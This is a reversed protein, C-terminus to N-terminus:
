SVGVFGDALLWERFKELGEVFPTEPKYGLLRNAKETSAWTEPVDGAQEAMRNIIAKKGFVQELDEIMQTLSVTKNNGLNIAEYPSADYDIAARIGQVTDKVFTYDRRTSGDGFVPIPKGALILKAFKHIALDPRQRPGFVTFFRLALFRIGFLHSYVHGLLEGSIKTSAYPSIPQPTAVDERWPVDPSVGYISSSSAFVFQKTGRSRAFELLNQTGLVNTRQYSVPDDISPRVGAKAALHIIVDPTEPIEREVLPLDCIDGEIFKLNPFRSLDNLNKRKIEVPYFPDLNDLVIVRFGESALRDSLHSGIFGAGGTVLALRDPIMVFLIASQAQKGFVFSGGLLQKAAGETM